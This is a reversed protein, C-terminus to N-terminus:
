ELQTIISSIKEDLNIGNEFLLDMEKDAVNLKDEIFNEQNEDLGLSVFADEISITLNSVIKSSAKRQYAYLEKLDQLTLAAIQRAKNTIDIKRTLQQDTKLSKLRAELGEAIIALHDKLRGTIDANIDIDRILLSIIGANFILRSGYEVIRGQSQAKLMVKKEVTSKNEDDNYFLINDEFNILVCGSHGYSKYCNLTLKALEYPTTTGYSNRLFDIVIGILSAILSILWNV